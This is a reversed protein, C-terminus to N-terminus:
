PACRCECVVPVQSELSVRHPTSACTNLVLLSLLICIGLTSVAGGGGSVIEVKQTESVDEGAM